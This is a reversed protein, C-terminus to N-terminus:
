FLSIDSITKAIKNMTLLIVFNIVANFCGVAAGFSYEANLIGRRYTYTSIVDAVSYTSPNYLLLIKEFGVNMLNGIALILLIVITPLISPLILHWIQQLRNAGDIRAAEFLEIDIAALAALYIISNWGFSQWIGSGIYLSRFYKPDMLFNIRAGGLKEIVNNVIGGRVAFLNVVMGVVIVVSIFHPLYSITQVTRKFVPSRVENLMLAFFIPAPFGFLISYFSLLVTNKVLRAFYVSQFFQRFYKIGVWSSGLIGKSPSFQKFAIIMGYMPIYHFVVYYVVAPLVLFFLFKDRRVAKSCRTLVTETGKMPRRQFSRRQM